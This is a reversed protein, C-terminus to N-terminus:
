DGGDKRGSGGEECYRRWRMRRKDGGEGGKLQFPAVLPESGEVGASVTASLEGPEVMQGFSLQDGVAELVSVSKLYM